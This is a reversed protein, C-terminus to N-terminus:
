AESAPRYFARSRFVGSRHVNSHRTISPIHLRIIVASVWLKVTQSKGGCLLPFSGRLFTNRNRVSLIEGKRLSTSLCNSNVDGSSPCNETSQTTGRCKFKPSRFERWQNETDFREFAIHFYKARGFNSNLEQSRMMIHGKWFTAWGNFNGSPNSYVTLKAEEIRYSKRLSTPVPNLFLSFVSQKSFMTIRGIWILLHYPLEPSMQTKLTWRGRRAFETNIWSSILNGEILDKMTTPVNRTAVWFPRQIRSWSRGLHSTDQDPSMKSDPASEKRLWVSLFFDNWSTIRSRYPGWPQFKAPCSPLACSKRSVRKFSGSL